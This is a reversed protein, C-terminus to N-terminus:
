RTRPMAHDTAWRVLDAADANDVELADALELIFERETTRVVGDAATVAAALALAAKRAEADGIRAGLGGLRGERGERGVDIQAKEVLTSLRASNLAAAADSAGALKAITRCLSSREQASFEGDADAALYLLEVLAELQSQEFRGVTATPDFAM